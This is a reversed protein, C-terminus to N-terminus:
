LSFLACSLFLFSLIRTSVVRALNARRFSEMEMLETLETKGKDREGLNRSRCEGRNVNKPTGPSIFAVIYRAIIAKLAALQTWAQENL